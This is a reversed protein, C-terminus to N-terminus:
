NTTRSRLFGLLFYTMKEYSVTPSVIAGNMTLFYHKVKKRKDEFIKEHVEMGPVSDAANKLYQIEM